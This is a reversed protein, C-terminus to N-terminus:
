SAVKLIGCQTFDCEIKERMGEPLPRNDLLGIDRIWFHAQSRLILCCCPEGFERRNLYLFAQGAALQAHYMLLCNNLEHALAAMDILSSIQYWGFPPKLDGKLYSVDPEFGAEILLAEQKRRILRLGDKGCTMNRYPWPEQGLQKNASWIAAVHEFISDDMDAEDPNSEAALQFIGPTQAVSQPWRQGLMLVDATIQPLHRYIRFLSPDSFQELTLALWAPKLLQPAHLKALPRLYVRPYGLYELLRRPQHMLQDLLFRRPWLRGEDLDLAVRLLLAPNRSIGFHVAEPHTAALAEVLESCGPYTSRIEEKLPM